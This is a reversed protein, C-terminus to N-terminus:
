RLGSEQIFRSVPNQYVRGSESQKEEPRITLILQDQARTWAVYALRRESEVEGSKIAQSSPLLGENVGAIIVVPFELGKAAHITMLQVGETDERIEDQVDYVAIFDLYEQITGTPNNNVWELAFNRAAEYPSDDGMYRHSLLKDVLSEDDTFFPKSDMHDLDLEMWVQFHSKGEGVAVKRIDSYEDRSLGILERMMLFSFNDYVNVILKLFAHFRRFEESNTLATKSGIYAHPTDHETMIQSLKKLLVHNRALVAINSREREVTDLVNLLETSDINRFIKISRDALPRNAKMTKKLRNENHGILNNAADVISADSRYNTELKYIDFEEQHEILYDPVAGRFEYISQDIDGVVFLSAGFAECLKNIIRWQLPDIDQTEDVLLHKFHLYKALTPILLELGILLSGYTLANNEMCRAIFAKFLTYAADHREPEIGKEYYEAFTKDIDRKKPNWSKKYVGLDIAIEKLLYDSEWQGYVTTSKSKFGIVDGFRHIMRLALAHMTGMTVRHAQPGIREELRTKMEQAAKRTFTFSLIEYPSVKQTEVLHAIREILVRTKGSGAGALVLAKKSDTVVAQQQQTDLKAM